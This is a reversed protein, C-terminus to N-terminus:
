KFRNERWCMNRLEQFFVTLQSITLVLISVLETDSVGTTHKFQFPKGNSCLNDDAL